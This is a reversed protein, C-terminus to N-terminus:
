NILYLYDRSISQLFSTKLPGQFRSECNASSGSVRSEYKYTDITTGGIAMHIATLFINISICRMRLIIIICYRQCKM